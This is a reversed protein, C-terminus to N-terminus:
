GNPGAVVLELRNSLMRGDGTCIAGNADRDTTPPLVIKVSGDGDPKVTIEWRINRTSSEKEPRRANAVEGRTVTFAHDRLRTHSIGFQESFRLEFTFRDEGDRSGPVDRISATLLPKVPATAASELPEENGADDTFSVRVKLAKDM